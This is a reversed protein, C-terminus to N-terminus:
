TAYGKWIEKQEMFMVILMAVIDSNIVELNSQQQNAKYEELFQNGYGGLAEGIAYGWRAFDAMRPLRELEVSEFIKM